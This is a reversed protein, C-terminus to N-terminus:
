MVHRRWGFESIWSLLENRGATELQSIWFCSKLCAKSKTVTDFLAAICNVIGVITSSRTSSSKVCVSSCLATCNLGSRLYKFRGCCDKRRGCRTLERCSAAVSPIDTWLIQWPDGRRSWRWDAPSKTVLRPLTSGLYNTRPLYCAKFTAQPCVSTTNCWVAETQSRLFETKCRECKYRCQVQWIHGCCVARSELSWRGWSSDCV